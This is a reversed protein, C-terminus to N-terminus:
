VIRLVNHTQRKEEPKKKVPLTPLDKLSPWPKPQPKPQTEVAKAEQREMAITYSSKAQAEIPNAQPTNRQVLGPGIRWSSHDIAPNTKKAGLQPLHGPTIKPPGPKLPNSPRSVSKLQPLDSTISLRAVNKLPPQQLQGLTAVINTSTSPNSNLKLQPLDRASVLPRSPNRPYSPVKKQQKNSGLQPLDTLSFGKSRNRLDGGWNNKVVKTPAPQGPESSQINKKSNDAVRQEEHLGSRQIIVFSLQRELDPSLENKYAKVFSSLLATVQQSSCKLVSEYTAAFIEVPVKKNMFTMNAGEIQQMKAEDHNATLDLRTNYKHKSEVESDTSSAVEHAKNYLNAEKENLDRVNVESNSSYISKHEELMHTHLEMRTSFVIHKADLCTQVPCMFHDSSYHDKLKNYNQFYKPNEPDRRECISCALYAEKCHKLFESSSYFYKTCYKCRIHKEKLHVRLASANMPEFEDSFTLQHKTCLDCLKKHHVEYIYSTLTKYNVFEGDCIPCSNSLIHHLEEITENDEVLLNGKKFKKKADDATSETSSVMRVVEASQRCFPCQNDKM